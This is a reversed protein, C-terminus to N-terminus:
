FGSPLSISQISNFKVSMQNEFSSQHFVMKEVATNTPNAVATEVVAGFNTLMNQFEIKIEWFKNELDEMKVNM